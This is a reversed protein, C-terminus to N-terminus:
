APEIGAAAELMYVILKILTKFRGSAKTQHNKKHRLMIWGVNKVSPDSNLIM